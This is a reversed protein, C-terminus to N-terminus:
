YYITRKLATLLNEIQEESEFQVGLDVDHDWDLLKGDRYLGLLTGGELWWHSKQTNLIHAIKFLIEEAKLASKDNFVVPHKRYSSSLLETKFRSVFTDLDHPISLEQNKYSLNTLPLIAAIPYNCTRGQEVIVFQDNSKKLPIM